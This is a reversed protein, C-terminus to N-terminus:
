SSKGASSADPANAPWIPQYKLGIGANLAPSQDASRERYGAPLPQPEKIRSIENCGKCRVKKGALRSDVQYGRGCRPCSFTMESM